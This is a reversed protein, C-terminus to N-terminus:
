KYIFSVSYDKKNIRIPIPADVEVGCGLVRYVGGYDKKAKIAKIIQNQTAIDTIGLELMKNKIAKCASDIGMEKAIKVKSDIDGFSEYFGYGVAIIEWDDDREKFERIISPRHYPPKKIFPNIESVKECQMKFRFTVVWSTKGDVEEQHPKGYNGSTDEDTIKILESFDIMEKTLKLPETQVIRNRFLQKAKIPAILEALKRAKEMSRDTLVITQEFWIPINMVQNFLEAKEQLENPSAYVSCTNVILILLLLFVIRKIM